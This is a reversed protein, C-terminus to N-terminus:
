RYSELQSCVFRLENALYELQWRLQHIVASCGHVPFRRRMDAEYIISKMADDRHDKNRLQRLIKTVNSVGFLRHVNQFMRPESAPFYPALPCNPTCKRRQYKCAACALNNSG